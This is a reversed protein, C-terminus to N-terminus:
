KIWRYGEAVLEQYDHASATLAIGTAVISVLFKTVLKMSEGTGFFVRLWEQKPLSRHNRLLKVFYHQVFQLEFWLFALPQM